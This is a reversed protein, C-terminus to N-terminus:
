NLLHQEGVTMVQHIEEDAMLISCYADNALRFPQM